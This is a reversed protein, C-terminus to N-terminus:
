RYSGSRSAQSRRQCEMRCAIKSLRPAWCDYNRRWSRLFKTIDMGHNSNMRQVFFSDVDNFFLCNSPINWEGPIAKDALTLIHLGENAFEDLLQETVKKLDDSGAKLREFMVNDAGKM